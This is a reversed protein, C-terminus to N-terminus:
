THKNFTTKIMQFGTSNNELLDAKGRRHIFKWKRNGERPTESSDTQLM